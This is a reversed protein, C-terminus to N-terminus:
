LNKVLHRKVRTRMFARNRWSPAAWVIRSEKPWFRELPHGVIAEARSWEEESPRELGEGPFVARVMGFIAEVQNM